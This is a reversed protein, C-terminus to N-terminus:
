RRRGSGVFLALAVFTIIVYGFFVYAIASPTQNFYSLILSILLFAMYFSLGMAALIAFKLAYIM